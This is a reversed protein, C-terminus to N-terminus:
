KRITNQHPLALNFTRVYEYRKPSYFHLTLAFKRLEEPFKATSKSSSSINQLMRKMLAFPIGALTKELQDFASSSVM